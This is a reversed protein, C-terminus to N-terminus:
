STSMACMLSAFTFLALGVVYIRAYGVRDGLSSLPLLTMIISLQYANVIWVSDAPSTHLITTITPLAINAIVSDLSSLATALSIAIVAFILKSGALADEKAAFGGREIAIQQM